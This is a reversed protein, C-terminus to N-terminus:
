IKFRNHDLFTTLWQSKWGKFALAKYANFLVRAVGNKKSVSYYFLLLFGILLTKVKKFWVCPQKFTVTFLSYKFLLGCYGTKDTVTYVQCRRYYRTQLAWYTGRIDWPNSTALDIVRVQPGWINRGRKDKNSKWNNLLKYRILM